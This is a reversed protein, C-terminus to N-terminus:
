SAARLAILLAFVACANHFIEGQFAMGGDALSFVVYSLGATIGILRRRDDFLRDSIGCLMFATLGVVISAGIRSSIVPDFPSAAFPTAVAFLGFPKLDCITTFPLHGQIFEAGMLLYMSEDYNLVSYLLAPARVIVAVIVFGAAVAAGHRFLTAAEPFPRM